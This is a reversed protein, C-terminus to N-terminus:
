PLWNGRSCNFKIKVLRFNIHGQSQTFIDQVCRQNSVFESISHASKLQGFITLNYQCLVRKLLMVCSFLIVSICICILTVLHLGANLQKFRLWYSLSMRSLDTM